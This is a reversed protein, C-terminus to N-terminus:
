EVNQVQERIREVLTRAALVRTIVEQDDAKSAITNVERHLEQALFDVKGFITIRAFVDSLDRSLNLLSIAVSEQFLWSFSGDTVQHLVTAIRQEFDNTRSAKKEKLPVDFSEILDVIQRVVQALNGARRRYQSDVM